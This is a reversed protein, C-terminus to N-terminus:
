MGALLPGISSEVDDADTATGVIEAFTELDEERPVTADSNGKSECEQIAQQLQVIFASNGSGSAKSILWRLQKGAYRLLLLTLWHHKLSLQLAHINRTYM